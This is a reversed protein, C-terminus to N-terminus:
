RKSVFISEVPTVITYSQQYTEDLLINAVHEARTLIEEPTKPFRPYNIFGVVYGQEEGGSYLYLTPEITVCLGEVLSERRLIQKAIEIPGAIYIRVTFSECTKRETIKDFLM